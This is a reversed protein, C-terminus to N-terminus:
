GSVAGGRALALRIQFYSYDKGLAEKLEKLQYTDLAHATRLITTMTEDDIFNHLAFSDDHLAIEVIHDYITNMKLNRMSSIQELPIGQEVLTKTKNASVTIQLLHDQMKLADLLPFQQKNQEIQKLIYHTISQIILLTDVETQKIERAIQQISKGYHQFGSLRSIFLDAYQNEITELITTLEDYLENALSHSNKQFKRFLQKIDNMIDYQDVIPVYSNHQSQKNSLVQIFLFLRKEFTNTYMSYKKGNVYSLLPPLTRNQLTEIGKHSITYSNAYSQSTEMLQHDVLEQITRKYLNQDLTPLIKYYHDLQYLYIDQITQISKKGQLIHYIAQDTREDKLQKSCTLIITTFM